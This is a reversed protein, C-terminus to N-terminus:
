AHSVNKVSARALARGRLQSALRLIEGGKKAALANLSEHGGVAFVAIARLLERLHAISARDFPLYVGGSLAAIQKFAAAATTDNGEHFVFVPVDLKGLEGALRGLRDVKEEMADGVFVLAGVKNKGTERIAHSLVREIQTEGALCSVSQIVRHLEAASLLWKSSRCVGYGHFYVLQVFLTGLGAAANFMEHQLQCATDWSPQRSATADLSFILRGVGNSNPAAAPKFKDLYANVTASRPPITLNNTM